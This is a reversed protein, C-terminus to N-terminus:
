IEAEEMLMLERAFDDPTGGREENLADFPDTEIEELGAKQDDFRDLQYLQYGSSGNSGSDSKASKIQRFEADEEKRQQDTSFDHQMKSYIGWVDYPEVLDKIYAQFLKKDRMYGPKPDEDEDDIYQVLKYFSCDWFTDDFMTCSREMTNPVNRCNKVEGKFDCNQWVNIGYPITKKMCGRGDLKCKEKKYERYNFCMTKKKESRPPLKMCRDAPKPSDYLRLSNFDLIAGKEDIHVCRGRNPGWVQCYYRSADLTTEWDQWWCDLYLKPKNSCSVQEPVMLGKKVPLALEVPVIAKSAIIRAAEKKVISDFAAQMDKRYKGLAGEVDNFSHILNLKLKKIKEVM